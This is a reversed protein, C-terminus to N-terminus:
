AVLALRPRTSEALKRTWYARAQPTTANLAMFEVNTCVYPRSNRASDEAYADIEAQRVEAEEYAAIEDLQMNTMTIVFTDAQKATAKRTQSGRVNTNVYYIEGDGSHFATRTAGSSLTITGTIQM